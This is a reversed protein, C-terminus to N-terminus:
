RYKISHGFRLIKREFLFYLLSSFLLTILLSLLTTGADLWSAIVPHANGMMVHVLKSIPVHFLYIGYSITGFWILLRCRLLRAFLGGDNVIPILILIAFLISLWLHTIAGGLKLLSNGTAFAIGSLMFIAAISLATSYHKLRELWGPQHIVYAMLTGLLLSDARWPSNIYASLGPMSYRMYPAMVIFWLLIYPLYSRSSYRILLPLLLYFQEEVALSWTVSLWDAGGTNAASMTINQTFSLYSWISVSQDAYLQRAPGTEGIGFWIFLMFIGINLYYLPFIRCVRRIYFAKFYHPAERNDLLIGGILFGSLVFFLDVGSWAFGLSQKIFILVSNTGPQLPNQIYHWLLVLLIAVGRIGDLEPIRKSGM